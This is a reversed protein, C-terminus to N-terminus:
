EGMASSKYFSFYDNFLQELTQLIPNLYDMPTKPIDSLAPPSEQEIPVAAVQFAGSNYHMYAIDQQQPYVMGLNLMAYPEVRDMSALTAINLSHRENSREAAAIRVKLDDIELGCNSIRAELFIYGLALVFLVLVSLLMIARDRRLEMAKCNKRVLLNWQDQRERERINEIEAQSPRNNQRAPLM